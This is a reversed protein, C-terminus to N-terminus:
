LIKLVDDEAAVEAVTCAASELETLPDKLCAGGPGSSHYKGTALLDPKSLYLYNQNDKTFREPM